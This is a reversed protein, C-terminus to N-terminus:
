DSETSENTLLPEDKSRSRNKLFLGVGIVLLLLGIGLIIFPLAHVFNILSLVHTKFLDATKEDLYVSENLWVVPFIVEHIQKLQPLLGEDKVHINIQIRKMAAFVAGSLPELDLYTEDNVKDPTMNIVGNVYKDAALYFHPSSVVVPANEKCSSISLVGAELCNGAPVCYGANDPNVSVNAFVEAPLQFRLTDIGRVKTKKEYTLYISRCLDTNFIYLIQSTNIKPTMFTGDTGNIMNAKPTSWWSLTENGNWKKIVNANTIGKRGSDVLYVGDDSNNFGLFLGFQAPFDIKALLLIDHVLNFIPDEYGFLLEEITHEVFVESDDLADALLPVIHSFDSPLSKALSQVTLLPINLQTIRVDTDHSSKEREFFLTHNYKYSVTNNGYFADNIRPQHLRYTFPGIEKVIPKHGKSINKPNTVNFLWYQMYIPPAPDVWQSYAPSDLSLVLQENLENDILKDSVDLGLLLAGAILLIFGIAATIVPCFKSCAVKAM